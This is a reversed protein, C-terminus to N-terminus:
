GGRPRGRKWPGPVKVQGGAYRFLTSGNDAIKGSGPHLSFVVEASTSGMVHNIDLEKDRLGPSLYQLPM